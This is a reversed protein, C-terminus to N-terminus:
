DRVYTRTVGPRSHGLAEAVHTMAKVKDVGETALQSLLNKAFRYRLGHTGHRSMGLADCARRMWRRVSDDRLRGFIRDEPGRANGVLPVLRVLLEKPIPLEVKRDRGGKTITTDEIRLVGAELDVMRARLGVAESIRLGCRWQLDLVLSVLLHREAVWAVVASAHEPEYAGAWRRLSRHRKPLPGLAKRDVKGVSCRFKREVALALKDLAPLVTRLTYATRGRDLYCEKVYRTGMTAMDLQTLNWIGYQARCWKAYNIAMNLYVKHTKFAYIGDVPTMNLPVWRGTLQHLARRNRKKADRKSEGSKQLERFVAVVQYTISGSGSM